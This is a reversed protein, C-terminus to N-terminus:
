RDREGGRERERKKEERKDKRFFNKKWIKDFIDNLFPGIDIGDVGCIGVFNISFSAIFNILSSDSVVYCKM